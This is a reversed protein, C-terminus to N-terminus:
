EHGYTGKKYHLAPPRGWTRTYNWYLSAEVWQTYVRLRAYLARAKKSNFGNRFRQVRCVSLYLKHFNPDDPFADRYHVLRHHGGALPRRDINKAEGIYIVQRPLKPYPKASSSPARLFRAWLYVGLWPGNDQLLSARHAWPVWKCFQLKAIDTEHM